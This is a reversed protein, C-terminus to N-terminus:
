TVGPPTAPSPPTRCRKLGVTQSSSRAMQRMWVGIHSRIQLSPSLGQDLIQSRYDWSYGLMPTIHLWDELKYTAGLYVSYSQTGSNFFQDIETAQALEWRKSLQYAQQFYLKFYLQVFSESNRFSNYLNDHHFQLAFRYREKQWEEQVEWQTAYTFNNQRVLSFQLGKFPEQASLLTPPLLWAAM